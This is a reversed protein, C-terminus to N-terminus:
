GMAALALLCKSYCCLYVDFAIITYVFCGAREEKFSNYLHEHFYKVIGRLM